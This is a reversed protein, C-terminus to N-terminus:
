SVQGLVDGLGMEQCVNGGFFVRKGPFVERQLANHLKKVITLIYINSSLKKFIKPIYIGVKDGM